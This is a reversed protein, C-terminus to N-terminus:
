VKEPNFDPNNQYGELARRADQLATIAADSEPKKKWLIAIAKEIASAQADAKTTWLTKPHPLKLKAWQVDTHALREVMFKEGQMVLAIALGGLTEELIPAGEDAAKQSAAAASLAPTANTVALKQDPFLVGKRGDELLEDDLAGLKNEVEKIADKTRKVALAHGELERELKREQLKLARRQKTNEVARAALNADAKAGSETGPLKKQKPPKDKKGGGSAKKAM